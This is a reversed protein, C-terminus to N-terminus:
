IRLEAVMGAIVLFVVHRGWPEGERRHSAVVVAVDAATAHVLAPPVEFTNLDDVEVWFGSAGQAYARMLERLVGDADSDGALLASRLEPTRAVFRHDRAFVPKGAGQRAEDLRKWVAETLAPQPPELLAYTTIVAGMFKTEPAWVAGIAVRVARPDLLTERGFPHELALAVLQGVDTSGLTAPAAFNGHAVLGSVQWGARLGLAVIDAVTEPVLRQQAAFYYPAVERATSSEPVEETLPELQALARVGNIGHLIGDHLESAQGAQSPTAVARRTYHDVPQGQPWALVDLVRTGLVRGAPFSAVSIWAHTDALDAPCRAELRPLAPVVQCEAYGFAGRNIMVRVSAPESLLEARLVLTGPSAPDAALGQLLAMRAGAARLVVVKDGKRLLAVGVDMNGAPLEGYLPALQASWGQHLEADTMSPSATGTLWQASLQVVGAGCRAAIFERLAPSPLKDHDLLFRGLERATCQMGETALTVGARSAVAQTLAATWPEAGAAPARGNAPFPGVLTWETVDVYSEARGLQPPPAAKVAALAERSPFASAPAAPAAARGSAAACGAAGVWLVAALAARAGVCGREVASAQQASYMSMAAERRAGSTASSMRDDNNVEARVTM